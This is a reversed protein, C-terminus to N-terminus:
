WGEEVKWMQGAKQILDKVLECRAQGQNPTSFAPYHLIKGIFTSSTCIQLLSDTIYLYHSICRLQKM